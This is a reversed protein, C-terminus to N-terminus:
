GGLAAILNEFMAVGQKLQAIEIFENPQHAQEISGPGCIITSMGARQFQGAEACYSATRVMNDGTVQRALQEIFGEDEPGLAPADAIKEVVIGCAPSVTKLLADAKAVAEFFPALAEDPDVGPPSRLDFEFGCERAIINGATGGKVVGITLTAYPPEFPSDEPPSAELAIATDRLISMLDVAVHVASAGTHPLSSHAELGTINVTYCRIGKHGTVVGWLTPEGVWCAKPASTAGAVVEIMSEVGACGIEEDYSMVFHIPREPKSAAMQPAFAMMLALFSKMDSTGRGYLKGDLETLTWPDTKWPQGDVPVVDTHGSLVIGGPVDPGIRVWLNAKDGEENTTRTMADAYPGLEREVWEILELNSNRSTTDFSILKALTREVTQYDSM